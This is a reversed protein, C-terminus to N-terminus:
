ALSDQLLYRRDQGALTGTQLQCYCSRDAWVDQGYDVKSSTCRETHAKVQSIEDLSWGGVGSKAKRTSLSANEDNSQTCPWM